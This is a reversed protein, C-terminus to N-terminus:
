CIYGLEATFCSISWSPCSRPLRVSSGQDPGGRKEMTGECVIVDLPKEDPASGQALPADLSRLPACAFRSSDTPNNESGGTDSDEGKVKLHALRESSLRRDDAPGKARM